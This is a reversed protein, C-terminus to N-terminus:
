IRDPTMERRKGAAVDSDETQASPTQRGQAGPGLTYLTSSARRRRQGSAVDQRYQALGTPQPGPQTPRAPPLDQYFGSPPNANQRFNYREGEISQVAQDPDMRTPTVPASAQASDRGGSAITQLRPSAPSNRGPTRPLALAPGGAQSNNTIAVTVSAQLPVSGAVTYLGAALPVLNHRHIANNIPPQWNPHTVPAEVSGVLALDGSTIASDTRAYGTAFRGVRALRHLRFTSARQMATLPDVNATRRLSAFADLVGTSNNTVAPIIVDLFPQSAWQMARNRGEQHRQRAQRRNTTLNRLMTFEDRFRAEQGTIVQQIGPDQEVYTWIQEVADMMRDGIQRVANQLTHLANLRDRPALTRLHSIFAEPSNFSRQNVVLPREATLIVSLNQTPPQTQTQSGSGGGGSGPPASARNSM